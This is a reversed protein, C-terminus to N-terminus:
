VQDNAHLGREVRRALDEVRQDGPDVERAAGSDIERDCRRDAPSARGVRSLGRADRLIQLAHRRLTRPVHQRSRPATISGHGVDAPVVRDIRTESPVRIIRTDAAIARCPRQAARDEATLGFVRQKELAGTCIRVSDRKVPLCVVPDELTTLPCIVGFWSQLVVVGIALVHVLRFWPNHVWSWSLLKGVLILVLGFVVFAVFLVHLLLLLDASILYLTQTDM